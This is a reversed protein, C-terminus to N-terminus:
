RECCTHKGYGRRRDKWSWYGDRIKNLWEDFHDQIEKIEFSEREKDLSYGTHRALWTRFYFRNNYSRDNEPLTEIYENITMSKEENEDNTEEL